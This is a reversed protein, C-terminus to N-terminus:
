QGKEAEDMLAESATSQRITDGNVINDIKKPSVKTNDRELYKLMAEKIGMGKGTMYEGLKEYMISMYTEQMFGKKSTHITKQMEKLMTYIFFSEFGSAVKEPDSSAFGLERRASAGALDGIQGAIGQAGSLKLGDNM